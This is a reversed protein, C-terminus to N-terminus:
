RTPRDLHVHIAAGFLSSGGPNDAAFMVQYLAGDSSDVPDESIASVKAHLTVSPKADLVILSPQGVRVAPRFSLTSM